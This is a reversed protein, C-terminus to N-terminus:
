RLVKGATSTEAKQPSRVRAIRDRLDFFAMAPQTLPGIALAFVVTGIGVNGGLLWGAGLVTVEIMTRVLWIPLGTLENLGTMLGDRPGTGLRTGIYMGTGLAALLLGCTFLVIRWALSEVPPMLSLVLHAGTGVLIVNALTGIGPKQKLPIWLLLIAVGTLITVLGFDLGTLKALGVGLVDWSSVGIKAHVTLGIGCGLVVVGM